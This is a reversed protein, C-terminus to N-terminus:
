ADCEAVARCPLQTVGPIMLPLVTLRARPRDIQHLNVPWCVTAVGKAFLRYFVNQPDRTSEYVDSVLLHVGSQAIWDVADACLFVSEREIEDFRRCGLANLILAGAKITAPCAASLERATIGGSGSARDLRIVTADVRYLKALPYNAAHNGDDTERIHGPFDLYTGSMGSVNLFYVRANFRYPGRSIEWTLERVTAVDRGPDSLSEPQRQHTPIPLTLDIIKM